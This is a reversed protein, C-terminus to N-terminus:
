SFSAWRSPRMPRPSTNPQREVEGGVLRTPRAYGEPLPSVVRDVGAPLEIVLPAAVRGAAATVGLYLELGGTAAPDRAVTLTPEREAGLTVTACGPQACAPLVGAWRGLRAMTAAGADARARVFYTTKDWHAYVAYDRFFDLGLTGDLHATAFRQDVYPYFTVQARVGGAGVDPAIALRDVTRVSAAEDVLEARTAVGTLQAAAWRGPALESHPRGLALHVELQGGGIQARVVRRPVPAVVGLDSAGRSGDQAVLGANATGGQRDDTVATSSVVEYRLARADPPATFAKTTSLSAVGQDRDFGFVLSDALVDRGLVGGIRRGDVDYMGDPFVMVERRDIALAPGVGIVSLELLEAYVRTQSTGTVDIRRPGQGLRLGAEEAVSKALASVNADPDIAFLYPGKGHVRAPVVLVGDELPGVLPFAWRDGSSFGPPTGVTCGVAGGLAVGIWMRRAIWPTVQM